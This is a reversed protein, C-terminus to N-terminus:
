SSGIGFPIYTFPFSYGNVTGQYSFIFVGFCGDADLWPIKRRSRSLLQVRFHLSLISPWLHIPMGSLSSRCIIIISGYYSLPPKAVSGSWAILGHGPSNSYIGQAQAILCTKLVSIAYIPVSGWQFLLSLVTHAGFM